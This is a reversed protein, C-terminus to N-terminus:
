RAPEQLLRQFQALRALCRDFDGSEATYGGFYVEEFTKLTPQLLGRLAPRPIERLYQRSTKGRQLVIQQHRDLEVLQHSFLYVIARGFDGSQAARRAAGLLDSLDPLPPLPLAQVDIQREAAPPTATDASVVRSRQRYAQWLVYAVLLLALALVGWGIWWLLDPSFNLPSGFDWNWERQPRIELPRLLDHESDYWPLPTWGGALAERGAEVEAVPDVQPLEAPAAGQDSGSPSVPEEWGPPEFPNDDPAPESQARCPMAILALLLVALSPTRWRCCPRCGLLRPHNM